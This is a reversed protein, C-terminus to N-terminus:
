WLRRGSQVPFKEAWRKKEVLARVLKAPLTERIKLAGHPCVELCCFCRICKDYDFRLREGEGTICAAPCYTWCEGCFKCAGDIVAPKRVLRNRLLAAIKGSPRTGPIQFRSVEPLTGDIEIEGADLGLERAARVTPLAGPDLGVLACAVRDVAATDTGGLLVGLQRPKGSKGPGEGEMALIGDMLTVAPSVTRCIQVLLRAFLDHNVGARMHWEPKRLGVVCGFLNKVGMTLMMMGHTKLKPLNVVIDADLVDAALDITGFPEGIDVKRTATFEACEVDLGALAQRAGSTKLIREFSGLAQSDGIRVRAGKALAYEAAARIVLPHTLVAEGPKAPSLFNPKLLVRKGPAIGGGGLADLIEFVQPKLRDYDYTAQRVIVRSM